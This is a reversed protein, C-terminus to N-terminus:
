QDFEKPKLHIITSSPNAKKFTPIQKYFLLAIRTKCRNVFYVKPTDCM